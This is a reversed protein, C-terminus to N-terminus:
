KIERHIAWDEEYIESARPRNNGYSRAITLQRYRKWGEPDMKVMENSSGNIRKLVTEAIFEHCDTKYHGDFEGNPTNEFEGERLFGHSHLMEEIWFKSPDFLWEFNELCYRGMKGRLPSCTINLARINNSLLFHNLGIIQACLKRTMKTIYDPNKSEAGSHHRRYFGRDPIFIEDRTSYLSSEAKHQMWGEPDMWQKSWQHKTKQPTEFRDLFTWQIIAIDFNFDSQICDQITKRYIRENSGGRLASVHVDKETSDPPAIREELSLGLKKALIGPYSEEKWNPIANISGISHSCGNVYIRL